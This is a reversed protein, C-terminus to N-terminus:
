SPTRITGLQKFHKHMRSAMLLRRAVLFEEYDLESKTLMDLPICNMEFNLKMDDLSDIGGLKLKDGGAQDKLSSFYISPAKDGIAINIESQTLVFNAIQNYKTRPLGKKKLYSRPYIPHIDGRHQILSSVLIDSSLFGKNGLASQAAFFVNWSSSNVSSTQLQQPLFLTWFSANLESEIIIKTFETLGIANIQRIDLDFASEPQGSYRGTLMPM